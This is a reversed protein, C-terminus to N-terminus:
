CRHWRFGVTVQDTEGYCWGMEKLAASTRESEACKEPADKGKCLSYAIAWTAVMNVVTETNADPLAHPHYKLRATASTALATAVVSVLISTTILRKM